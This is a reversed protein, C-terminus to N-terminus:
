NQDFTVQKGLFGSLSKPAQATGRSRIKRHEFLYRYKLMLINGRHYRHRDYLVATSYLTCYSRYISGYTVVTTSSHLKM